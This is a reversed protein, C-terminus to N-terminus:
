QDQACWSLLLMCSGHPGSTLSQYYVVHGDMSVLGLQENMYVNLRTLAMNGVHHGHRKTRCRSSHWVWEIESSIHVLPNKLYQVTSQTTHAAQFMWVTLNPTNRSTAMSTVTLIPVQGCHQPKGEHLLPRRTSEGM